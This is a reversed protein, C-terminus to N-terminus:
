NNTVAEQGSALEPEAGLAVIMQVIRRAQGQTTESDQLLPQLRALAADTDGAEVALVALQEEALVRYPAGPSALGMLTAERDPADAGLMSRKLLAMDRYIPEVGESQAIATFLDAATSLDGAVATESAALFKTVIGGTAPDGAATRLAEARSGEDTENLAATLADGRLAAAAAAQGKSFENYATGGVIVVIGLVAIWGYRKALGYLRDQRVEETVEEIFSDSDSM